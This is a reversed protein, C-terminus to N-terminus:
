SRHKPNRIWKGFTVQIEDEPLRDEPAMPRARPSQELFTDCDSKTVSRKAPRILPSVMPEGNIFADAFRKRPDPDNRFRERPDPTNEAM